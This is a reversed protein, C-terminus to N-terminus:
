FSSQLKLGGFDGPMWPSETDFAPMAQACNILGLHLLAACLCLNQFASM